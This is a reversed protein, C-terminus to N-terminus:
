GGCLAFARLLLSRVAHPQIGLEKLNTDTLSDVNDEFGPEAYGEAKLKDYVDRQQAATLGTLYKALGGYSEV